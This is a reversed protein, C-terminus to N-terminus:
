SRRYCLALLVLLAAELIKSLLAYGDNFLHGGITVLPNVHAHGDSKITPWFTGHGLLTHWAGYGLLFTLMMAIGLTYLKKRHIDAIALGIGAFIALGSLTFAFPRPDPAVWFQLYQLLRPFGHAPHFFHLVGVLGAMGATIPLRNRSIQQRVVALSPQYYLWGMAPVFVLTAIEYNYQLFFSLAASLGAIGGFVPVLAAAACGPCLILGFTGVTASRTADLVAAYVLYSLGLYGILQYPIVRAGVWEGSYYLVPGWGLSRGAEVGFGFAGTIPEVQSPTFGITGSLWLFLSLYGVAVGVALATPRWGRSVPETYWVAVVSVTTWIFPILFIHLSLLSTGFVVGYIAAALLQVAVLVNVVLLTWLEAGYNQSWYEIRTTSM